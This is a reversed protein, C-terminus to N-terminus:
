SANRLFCYIKQCKKVPTPLEFSLALKPWQDRDPPHSGGERRGLGLRGRGKEGISQLRGGPLTYYGLFHQWLNIKPAHIYSFPQPGNSALDSDDTADSRKERLSFGLPPRKGRKGRSPRWGKGGRGCKAAGREKERPSATREEWPLGEGRSGGGELDRGACCPDLLPPARQISSSSLILSFNKGM